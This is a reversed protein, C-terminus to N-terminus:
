KGINIYEDDDKPKDSDAMEKNAAHQEVRGEVTKLWEYLIAAAAKRAKIDVVLNDISADDVNHINQLDLIKDALMGRALGWGRSKAMNTLEEGDSLVEQTEKDDDRRVM